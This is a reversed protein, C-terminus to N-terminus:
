YGKNFFITAKALLVVDNIKNNKQSWNSGRYIVIEYNGKGKMNIFVDHAITYTGNDDMIKNWHSDARIQLPINQDICFIQILIKDDAHQSTNWNIIMDDNEKIRKNSVNFKNFPEVGDMKFKPVSPLDNTDGVFEVQIIDKTFLQKVRYNDIPCTLRENDFKYYGKQLNNCDQDTKCKIGAIFQEYSYTHSDSFPVYEDTLHIYADAPKNTFLFSLDDSKTEIPTYKTKCSFLNLVCIIVVLFKITNKM